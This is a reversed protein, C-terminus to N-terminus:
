LVGEIFEDTNVLKANRKEERLLKRLDTKRPPNAQPPTVVENSGGSQHCYHSREEV